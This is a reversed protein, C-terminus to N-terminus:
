ETFNAAGDDDAPEMVRRDEPRPDFLTAPMAQNETSLAGGSGAPKTFKHVV